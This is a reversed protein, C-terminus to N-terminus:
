QANSLTVMGIALYAVDDHPFFKGPLLVDLELGFSMWPTARVRGFLDLELGYDRQGGGLPEAPPDVTSYLLLARAEGEWIGKSAEIGPGIGFV